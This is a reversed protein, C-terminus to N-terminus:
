GARRYLVRLPALTLGFGCEACAREGRDDDTDVVVLDRPLECVPCDFAEVGAATVVLGDLAPGISPIPAPIPSSTRRTVTAEELLSDFAHAHEVVVNARRARLESSARRHPPGEGSCIGLAGRGCLRKRARARKRTLATV